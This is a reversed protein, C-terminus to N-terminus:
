PGGGIHQLTQQRLQTNEFLASILRSVEAGTFGRESLVGADWWERIELLRASLIELM